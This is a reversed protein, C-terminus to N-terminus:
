LDRKNPRSLYGNACAVDLRGDDDVDTMLTAFAWLGRNVGQQSAVEVFGGDRALYLTNGKAFKSLRAKLKESVAAAGVVRTGAKSFMNAVSLDLQGDGDFDGLDASMGNGPDELGAAVARNGVGGDRQFVYLDNSGFDNALYLQPGGLHLVDGSVGALTWRPKVQSGPTKWPLFTVGAAGRVLVLRRGETSELMDLPFGSALDYPLLALDLDGDGDFDSPVAGVYDGRASKPLPTPTFSAGDNRLVVPVVAPAATLLLDVDGDGDFDGGLVSTALVGSPFKFATSVEYRLPAASRRDFRLVVNADVTFVEAIGDGTVDLVSLGGNILETQRVAELPPVSLGAEEAREVFRPRERRVTERWTDKWSSITLPASRALTVDAEGRESVRAGTADRGEVEWLLHAPQLGAKTAGLSLARLSCASAWVLNKVPLPGDRRGDKVGGCISDFAAEVVDNDAELANLAAIPDGAFAHLSLLSTLALWRQVPQDFRSHHLADLM